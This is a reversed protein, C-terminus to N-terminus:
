EVEKIELDYEGDYDDTIVTISENVKNGYIGHVGYSNGESDVVKLFGFGEHFIFLDGSTNIQNSLHHVIDRVGKDCPYFASEWLKIYEDTWVSEDIEITFELEKTAKVEYRRM